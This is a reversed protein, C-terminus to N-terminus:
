IEFARAIARDIDLPTAVAVIVVMGTKQQVEDRATPDGPDSVVITLVGQQASLPVFGLREMMEKTVLEPLRSDPVQAALDIFPVNYQIALAIGIMKFTAFGLEVLIEGLKRTRYHEQLDLAEELEVRNIFGQELLIEGIKRSKWKEQLALGQALQRSDIKKQELLIDGVKQDRLEAQRDLAEAVMRPTVMGQATLIEGLRMVSVVERVADIPLFVREVRPLETPILFIGHPTGMSSETIGQLTEGDTFRVTVLRSSSQVKVEDDPRSRREIFAVMKVQRLEVARVEQAGDVNTQVHFVTRAPNFIELRGALREGDRLTVEVERSMGHGKTSKDETM